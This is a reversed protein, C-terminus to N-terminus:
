DVACRRFQGRGCHHFQFLRHAARERDHRRSDVQGLHNQRGGLCSGAGSLLRSGRRSVGLVRVCRRCRPVSLGNRRPNGRSFRRTYLSRGHSKARGGADCLRLARTRERRSLRPYNEAGPNALCDAGDFGTHQKRKTRLPPATLCGLDDRGSDAGCGYLAHCGGLGAGRTDPLSCAM